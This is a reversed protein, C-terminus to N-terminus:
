ADAPDKAAPESEGLLDLALRHFASEVNEGTKASTSFVRIGRDLFAQMDGGSVEWEDILDHKNVLVLSSVEPYDRAIADLEATAADLTERRTGDVVYIFGSSGRLYSKQVEQFEDRGALDWIMLLVERGGACQPRQDIKVGVTTLYDDSFIGSV